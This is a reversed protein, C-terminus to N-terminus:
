AQPSYRTLAFHDLKEPAKSDPRKIGVAIRLDTAVRVSHLAPLAVTGPDSMDSAKDM